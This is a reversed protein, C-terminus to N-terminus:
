FEKQANSNEARDVPYGDRKEESKAIPQETQREKEPQSAIEIAEHPFGKRGSPLTCEGDELCFRKGREVPLGKKRLSKFVNISMIQHDLEDRDLYYLDGTYCYPVHLVIDFREKLAGIKKRNTTGCEVAITANGITVVVDVKGIGKVYAETELSREDWTESWIRGIERMLQCIESKIFAHSFGENKGKLDQIADLRRGEMVYYDICKRCKVSM